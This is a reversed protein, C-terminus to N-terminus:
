HRAERGRLSGYLGRKFALTVAVIFLGLLAM